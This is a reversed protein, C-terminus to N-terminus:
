ALELQPLIDAFPTEAADVQGTRVLSAYGQVLSWILVELGRPGAPGSEFPACVEALVQYSAAAATQYDADETFIEDTMFMLTALAEHNRSFTLYGNCVALLRAYPDDPAADRQEIMTRTFITFAKTVIATLLDKLGKFHHAPAAHSVGTRAACKRLTLASLGGEALLDIGADILAARLNGHHHPRNDEPSTM